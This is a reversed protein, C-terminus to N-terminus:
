DRTSGIWGTESLDFLIDNPDYYKVEFHTRSVDGEKASPRGAFYRGGKKHTM